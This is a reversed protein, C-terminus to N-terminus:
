KYPDKYRLLYEERGDARRFLCREYRAERYLNPNGTWVPFVVEQQGRPIKVVRGHEPGEICVLEEELM